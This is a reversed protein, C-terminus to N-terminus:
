IHILSLVYTTKVRETYTLASYDIPRNPIQAIRVLSSATYSPTMSRLGVVAVGLTLLAAVAVIWARRGLVGM